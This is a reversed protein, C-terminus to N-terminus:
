PRPLSTSFLYHGTSARQWRRWFGRWKWWRASAWLCGGRRNRPNVSSGVERLYKRATERRKRWGIVGYKGFRDEHGLFMNEEVSLNPILSGEQSVLSVGGRLAERVSRFVVRTGRLKMEGRDPTYVGAIVKVLTSKGAGNEGVIGVIEGPNIHILVGRLAQTEDFGKWLGGVEFVPGAGEGNLTEPSGEM